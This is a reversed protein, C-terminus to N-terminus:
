PRSEVTRVMYRAMGYSELKEALDLDDVPRFGCRQWFPTSGSVAVLSANPLGVARAHDILMGVVKAAVGLGRADPLLALDHIYYTGPRAPIAGIKTNLDPPQLLVWPHSIVYGQPKGGCELMLCGEPYLQLREAFIEPDEPHNRHVVAAIECVMPLDRPSMRRWEGKARAHSKKLM